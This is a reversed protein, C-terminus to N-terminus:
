DKPVEDAGRAPLDCIHEVISPLTESMAMLTATWVLVPWIKTWKNMAPVAPPCDLWIECILNYFENVIEKPRSHPCRPSHPPRYFCLVWIRACRFLELAQIGLSCEFFLNGFLFRAIILKNHGGRHCLPRDQHSCHCGVRCRHHLGNPSISHLLSELRHWARLRKTQEHDDGGEVRATLLEKLLKLMTRVVKTQEASPPDFEVHVHNNHLYLLLQRRLLTQVRRRRLLIAFCFLASLVGGLKMTDTMALCHQHMRCIAPLAKLDRALKLCSSASDSSLVKALNGSCMKEIAEISIPMRADVAAKLSQSKTNEIIAPPIM